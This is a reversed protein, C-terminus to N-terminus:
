IGLNASSELRRRTEGYIRFPLRSKARDRLYHLTSKGIRCKKAEAQTLSLIAERVARNDTRELVPAPEIFDPTSLKGVLFRGLENAKQEIVTDWKWVRGKYKVGSNFQERLLDLFRSKAEIDFRYSYDDGTFFFDEIDLLRSEFAQLATLDILWRFCEQLDLVLGEKIQYNAPPHVFGVAAELGIANVAKRCEAELIAYGFNLTANFADSADFQHSTENL